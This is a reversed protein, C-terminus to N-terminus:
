MGPFPYPVGDTFVIKSFDFDTKNDALSPVAGDPPNLAPDCAGLGKVSERGFLTAGAADEAKLLWDSEGPVGMETSSAHCTLAEIKAIKLADLQGGTMQADTRGHVSGTSTVYWRNVMVANASAVDPNPPCGFAMDEAIKLSGGKGKERFFVYDADRPARRIPSRADTDWVVGAAHVAVLRHSAFTEFRAGITGAVEDGTVAALKGLDLSMSGKGQHPASAGARDIAGSAVEVFTTDATKKMDLAWDFTTAGTRTVTLKVDVGHRSHDFEASTGTGMSLDHAIANEVHFLFKFLHRNVRGVTEESRVFLHPNCEAVPPTMPPPPPATTSATADTPTLDMAVTAYSPVAAALDSATSQGSSPGGCAVLLALPVALSLTRVLKM